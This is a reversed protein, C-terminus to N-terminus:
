CAAFRVFQRDKGSFVLAMRIHKLDPFSYEGYHKEKIQSVAQSLLTDPNDGERAYKLELVFYKDDVKVELDSRGHINRVEIDATLGCARLCLCLMGQVADEDPMRYREYSLKGIFSNLGKVFFEPKKEDFLLFLEAFIDREELPIDADAYLCAMSVTLERNPYNVVLNGTATVSKISLYGTQTLLSIDDLDSLEKASNLLKASIVHDQGYEEPDRLAHGRVYNTLVTPTGASGYWYNAFGDVPKALFKIVSWPSFVHTSARSDFCFGDYNDKMRSICEEVSLNLAAAARELYPMFDRRLEDETYGLLTGYSSDMTIDDLNNFGSFITTHRYRCIGTIFMFRLAGSHSKVRLYFSSLVEKIDDFVKGDDLVSNLPADYEDILLVLKSSFKDNFRKLWASFRDLTDANGQPGNSPEGMPNDNMFSNLAYFFHDKFEEVSKACFESFDLHLILCDRNSEDQEDWLSEIDLGKFDALGYKFLSEFTNLLLTKGFRRPRSIFVYAPEKALEFVQATKDVYLMHNKRLTHFSVMGKPLPLM